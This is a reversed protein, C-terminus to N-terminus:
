FPINDGGAGEQPLPGGAGDQPPAPPPADAPPANQADDPVDQRVPAQRPAGQAGGGGASGLFQFREVFIRHKSRKSGDKGEWQDFQLRGEILIPRGKSMYQNLTEAQKGYCRCDIFCTDERQQGQQDRWRHNIALGFEVVATQSPLYSMQPDRTLNGVLIVKNYNAM